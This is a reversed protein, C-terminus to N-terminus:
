QQPRTNTHHYLVETFQQIISCAIRNSSRALREQCCCISSSSSSGARRCYATTYHTSWALAMRSLNQFEQVHAWYTRLLFRQIIQQLPSGFTNYGCRGTKDYTPHDWVARAHVWPLLRVGFPLTHAGSQLPCAAFVRCRQQLHRYVAANNSTGTQSAIENVVYRHLM